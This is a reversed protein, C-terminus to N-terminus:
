RSLQRNSEFREEILETLITCIEKQHLSDDPGPIDLISCIFKLDHFDLGVLNSAFVARRNNLKHERFNFYKEHPDKDVYVSLGCKGCVVELCRFHGQVKSPDEELRLTKEQGSPCCHVDDLTNLLAVGKLLVNKDGLLPLKM